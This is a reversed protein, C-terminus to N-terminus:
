STILSLVFDLNKPHLSLTKTIPILTSYPLVSVMKIAQNNENYAKAFEVTQFAAEMPYTLLDLISTM